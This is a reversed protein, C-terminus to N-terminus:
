TSNSKEAKVRCPALWSPTGAPSITDTLLSFTAMLLKGFTRNTSDCRLCAPWREQMGKVWVSHIATVSSQALLPNPSAPAQQVWLATLNKEQQKTNQLEPCLLAAATTYTPPKKELLLSLSTPPPCSPLFCSTSIVPPIDHKPHTSISPKLPFWVRHAM